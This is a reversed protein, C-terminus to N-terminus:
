PQCARRKRRRLRRARNSRHSAQASTVNVVAATGDDHHRLHFCLGDRIIAGEGLREVVSRAAPLRAALRRRLGRIDVGPGRELYRLVARDTIEPGTM